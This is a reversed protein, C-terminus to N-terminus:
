VEGRRHTWPEICQCQEDLGGQRRARGPSGMRLSVAVTRVIAPDPFDNDASCAHGALTWLILFLGWDTTHHPALRPTEDERRRQQAACIIKNRTSGPLQCRDPAQIHRVTCAHEQTKRLRTQHTQGERARQPNTPPPSLIIADCQSTPLSNLIVRTSHGVPRITPYSNRPWHPLHHGGLRLPAAM